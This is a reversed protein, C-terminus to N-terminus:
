EDEIDLEDDDEEIFEYRPKKWIKKGYNNYLEVFEKISKNTEQERINNMIIKVEEANSLELDMTEIIDEVKRKMNKNVNGLFTEITKQQLKKKNYKYRKDLQVQNKIMKIEEETLTKYDRFSITYRRDGEEHKTKVFITKLIEYGAMFKHLMQYEKDYQDWITKYFSDKDITIKDENFFAKMYFLNTTLKEETTAMQKNIKTSNVRAKHKDIVPINEYDWIDKYEEVEKMRAVLLKVNKKDLKTTDVYTKKYGTIDMFRRMCELGRANYEKEM